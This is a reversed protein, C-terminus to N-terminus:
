KYFEKKEWLNFMPLDFLLGLYIRHANKPTSTGDNFNRLRPTYQVGTSGVLPTGPISISFHAAPSLFQEWRLEQPLGGDQDGLRYSVVAGIDILTATLSYTLKRRHQAQGNKVKVNGPNLLDKESLNGGKIPRGTGWSYSIGIPATFGYVAFGKFTDKGLGLTEIGFFPGPLTVLDLSRWVTRKRKYSSPPMAYSEVVKALQKEDRALAVDGLFGSFKRIFQFTRRDQALLSSSALSNAAFYLYEGIRYCQNRLYPDEVDTTYYTMENLSFTYITDLTISTDRKTGENHWAISVKAKQYIINADVEYSNITIKQKKKWDTKANHAGLYVNSISLDGQKLKGKDASKEYGDLEKIFSNNQYDNKAIQLTNHRYVISDLISLTNQVAGAYNKKYILNYSEMLGEVADFQKKTNAWAKNPSITSDSFLSFVKSLSKWLNYADYYNDKGGNQELQTQKNAFDNKMRDIESITIELKGLFRCVMDCNMEELDGGNAIVSSFLKHHKIDLLSFMLTMEEPHMNKYQDYGLMHFRASDDKFFLETNVAYLFAISQGFDNKDPKNGPSMLYAEKIVERYSKRESFGQALKVAGKIYDVYSDDPKNKTLWESYALNEPLTVFDKSLAYQWQSGLNPIEYTEKGNLLSLTSPFLERFLPYKEAQKTFTEFFWIVTEQKMRNAIYIALADIMESQSPMRFGGTTAVENQYVIQQYSAQIQSTQSALKNLDYSSLEIKGETDLKKFLAKRIEINKPDNLLKAIKQEINSVELKSRTIEYEYNSILRNAIYSSVITNAAKFLSDKQWRKEEPAWEAYDIIKIAYNKQTDQVSFRITLPGSESQWEKWALKDMNHESTWLTYNKQGDNAKLTLQLTNNPVDNWEVSLGNLSPKRLSDQPLSDNSPFPLNHIRQQWQSLLPDFETTALTIKKLTDEPPFSLILSDKKLTIYISEKKLSIFFNTSDTEASTYMHVESSFSSKLSKLMKLDDTAPIEDLHELTKYRNYKEQQKLESLRLQYLSKLSSAVLAAEKNKGLEGLTKEVTTDDNKYLIDVPFAQMHLTHYKAYLKPYGQMVAEFRSSEVSSVYANIGALLNKVKEKDTENEQGQYIFLQRAISYANYLSDPKIKQAGAQEYSCLLLVLILLNRATSRTTM